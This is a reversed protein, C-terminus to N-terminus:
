GDLIEALKTLIESIAFASLPKQYGGLFMKGTPLNNVGIEYASVFVVPIKYRPMLERAVQIGDRDGEIRIDMFILDPQVSELIGSVDDGSGTEGVVDVGYKELQRKTYLRILVEDEVLVVRRKAM